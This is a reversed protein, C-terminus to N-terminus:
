YAKLPPFLKSCSDHEGNEIVFYERWKLIQIIIWKVVFLIDDSLKLLFYSLFICINILKAIVQRYTTRSYNWHLRPSEDVITPGTTKAVKGVM